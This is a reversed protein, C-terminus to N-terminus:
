LHEHTVANLLFGDILNHIEYGKVDKGLEKNYSLESFRGSILLETITHKM